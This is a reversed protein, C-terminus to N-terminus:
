TKQRVHWTQKVRFRSAAIFCIAAALLISVPHYLATDAVALICGLLFLPLLLVCRIFVHQKLFWVFANLPRDVWSDIGTNANLHEKTCSGLHYCWIRHPFQFTHALWQHSLSIPGVDLSHSDQFAIYSSALVGNVVVRGSPTFPAFVGERVVHRIDSVPEGGVLRDGVEVASAPVAGNNELFLMHDPSLELKSPYFQLYDAQMKSHRHGFSYVPEYIEAELSVLVEDGLQLEKMLVSEGNKLTLTTEGSFCAFFSSTSTPAPTSPATSPVESQLCIDLEYERDQIVDCQSDFYGLLKWEARGLVELEDVCLYPKKKDGVFIAFHYPNATTAKNAGCTIYFWPSFGEKPTSSGECALDVSSNACMESGISAGFSNSNIWLKIAEGSELEDIPVVDEFTVDSFASAVTEVNKLKDTILYKRSFYTESPFLKGLLNTTWVTGDRRNNTMGYRLRSKARYFSEGFEPNTGHVFTFSSQEDKPKGSTVYKVSLTDGVQLEENLVAATVSSAMYTRNDEWCYHIIYNSTFSFGTRDNTLLVGDIPNGWGNIGTRVPAQLNCLRISVTRELGYTTSHGTERVSGAEQVTLKFPVINQNFEDCATNAVAPLVKTTDVCFGFDFADSSLQLDEAFTTFGGTTDLNRLAPGFNQLPFEHQLAGAPNSIMMDRFTSTRVGTWPTNFFTYVDNPNEGFHHMAMDYELVGDGCDRYRTYYLLPSDHPTPVHAQQGWNVTSCDNGKCDLAVNPSYFPPPM